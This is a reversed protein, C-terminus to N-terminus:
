ANRDSSRRWFRWWPRRRAGVKRRATRWIEFARDVTTLDEAELVASGAEALASKPFNLGDLGAACRDHFAQGETNDPWFGAGPRDAFLSRAGATTVFITRELRSQAGRVEPDNRAALWYTLRADPSRNRRPSGGEFGPLGVRALFKGCIDDALDHYSLLDVRGFANEFAMAQEHYEFLPRAYEIFKAFSGTFHDKRVLHQYLSQAFEDGRRFVLVPHVEWDGLTDAVVQLYEKQRRRFDDRDLGSWLNFGLLSCSLDESSVIVTPSGAHRRLAEAVDEKACDYVGTFAKAIWNHSNQGAYDRHENAPYSLGAQNLEDRRSSLIYQISSTGTKHTGCHLIIRM